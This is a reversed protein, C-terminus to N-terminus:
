LGLARPKAEQAEPPIGAIPEPRAPKVAQQRVLFESQTHSLAANLLLKREEAWAEREIAHSAQVADLYKLWEEHQAALLDLIRDARM